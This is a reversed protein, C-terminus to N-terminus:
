VSGFGGVRAAMTVEMTPDVVAEEKKAVKGLGREESMDRGVQVVSRGRESIWNLREGKPVSTRLAVKAATTGEESLTWNAPKVKSSLCTEKVM